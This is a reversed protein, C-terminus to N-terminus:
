EDFQEDFLAIVKDKQAAGTQGLMRVTVGSTLNGLFAAEPRTAGAALASVIGATCADGAGVIDLTRGTQDVAPVLMKEGDWETAVGHKNCTIFVPHGTRDRITDMANYVASLDFDGEEPGGALGLAEHNNCKIIMNHFKRIFGRSDGYILLEPYSDAIESLITLLSDTVVGCNEEMLQDLLIIADVQPALAKVNTILQNQLSEPTVSRNKVDHRNTEVPPKGDEVFVTKIYAPTSVLDSTVLYTMDVGLNKLAKRVEYGDGDDGLLSVAYIKGVGLAALNNIVTGAAGAAPRKRIIQFATLGTELSPEDLTRDVDYWQDLFLDGVVAIRLSSFRSILDLLRARDM